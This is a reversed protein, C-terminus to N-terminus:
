TGAPKEGPNPPPQAGADPPPTPGEGPPRPGEGPLRDREGRPGRPEAIMRRMRERRAKLLEEYAKRQEPTLEAAIDTEMREVIERLSHMSQRRLKVLEDLDRKVIPQIRQKQEPTLGLKAADQEFLRTRWAEPPPLLPGHRRAVRFAVLGGSVFGAAFIAILVLSVQWPKNM